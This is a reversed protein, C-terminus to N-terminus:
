GKKRLSQNRIADVVRDTTWAAAFDCAAISEPRKYAFFWRAATYERLRRVALEADYADAQDLRRCLIRLCENVSRQRRRRAM